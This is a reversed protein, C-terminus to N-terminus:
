SLLTKIMFWINYKRTKFKNKDWVNPSERNFTKSQLGSVHLM